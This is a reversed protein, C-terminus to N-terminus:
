RSELSGHLHGSQHMEQLVTMIKQGDVGLSQLGQILDRLSSGGDVAVPRKTNQGIRIESRRTIATRGRSIGPNPQSAIDEEIVEITLDSIQVLCPSMRVNRGAIITGTKENLIIRADVRPTIELAEIDALLKTVSGQDRYHPMLGVRVNGPNTITCIGINRGRLMANVAEQIRRANEASPKRLLFSMEGERNVISPTLDEVPAECIAGDTITGATPHNRTVKSNTGAADFGGIVLKGQALAYIRGDSGRLETLLLEGGFLSTAEGISSVSVDMPTGSMAFSPLKASINVLAINGSAIQDARVNMNSRRLYSVLAQRTAVTGDGSGRLGTVIGRGTLINPRIEHLTVLSGIRVKPGVPTRNVIRPQSSAGNQRTKVDTAAGGNARAAAGTQSALPPCLALLALTANKISHM